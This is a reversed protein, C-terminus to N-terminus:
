KVEVSQKEFTGQSHTNPTMEPTEPQKPPLNLLKDVQHKSIHYQIPKDERALILEPETSLIKFKLPAQGELTFYAQGIAPTEPHSRKVSLAQVREWNEVLANMSDAGTEVPENPARTLRWHGDTLNLQLKPLEIHHLKPSYGLPSLSALQIVDGNLFHYINDPVLYVESQIKIYRMHDGMPSQDGFTISLNDFHVTLIAPELKLEALKVQQSDLKRYARTNLLQLFSQIRFGHAPLQIPNQIYWNGQFKNLEIPEQQAREIRIHEVEVPNLSTLKPNESLKSKEPTYWIIIGLGIVVFLLVLNLLWRQHM